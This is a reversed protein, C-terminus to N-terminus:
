ETSELDLTIKPARMAFAAAFLKETEERSVLDFVIRSHIMTTGDRQATIVGGIGQKADRTYLIGLNSWQDAM